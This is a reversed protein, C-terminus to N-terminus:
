HIRDGEVSIERRREGPETDLRLQKIRRAPPRPVVHGPFCVGEKAANRVRDEATVHLRNASEAPAEGDLLRHNSDARQLRKRRRGPLAVEPQQTVRIRAPDEVLAVRVLLGLDRAVLAPESAWAMPLRFWGARYLRRRPAKPKKPPERAPRLPARFGSRATHNPARHSWTSDGM